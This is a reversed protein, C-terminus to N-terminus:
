KFIEDSKLNCNVFTNPFIKCNKGIMTGANLVANCGIKTESNVLTGLKRRGSDTKKGSLLVQINSNDFRLNAVKSGAGFNVNEGIISDGVYSFHPINAGSLIISNKIECNGIHSDSEIVTGNRLYANPGITCNDGITVFGEIRTGSKIVTGNGAFFTGHVSVSHELIGKNQVYIEKVFAESKELYEWFKFEDNEQMEKKLEALLSLLAGMM